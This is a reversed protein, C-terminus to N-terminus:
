QERSIAVQDTPGGTVYSHGVELAILAELDGEDFGTTHNFWELPHREPERPPYGAVWTIAYLRGRCQAARKWVDPKTARADLAKFTAQTWQPDIAPKAQWGAREGAPLQGAAVAFLDAQDALALDAGHRLVAIEIDRSATLTPDQGSSDLEIILRPTGVLRELMRAVTSAQEALDGELLRVKEDATAEPRSAMAKVIADRFQQLDM